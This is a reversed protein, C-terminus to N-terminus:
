AAYREAAVNVIHVATVEYGDGGNVGYFPKFKFAYIYDPKVFGNYRRGARAVLDFSEFFFAPKHVNGYRARFFLKRESAGRLLYKYPSLRM